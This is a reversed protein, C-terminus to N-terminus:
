RGFKAPNIIVRPANLDIDEQNPPLIQVIKTTTASYDVTQIDSTVDLDCLLGGHTIALTLGSKLPVRFVAGPGYFAVKYVKTTAAPVTFSGSTVNEDQENFGLDLFGSVVTDAAASKAAHGTTADVKFFFSSAKKFVEAALLQIHGLACGSIVHGKAINAM